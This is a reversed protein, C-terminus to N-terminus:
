GLPSTPPKLNLYVNQSIAVDKCTSLLSFSNLMLALSFTAVLNIRLFASWSFVLLSM